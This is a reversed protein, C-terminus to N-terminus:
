KKEIPTGKYSQIMKRVKLVDSIDIQALIIGPNGAMEAIIEGWPSVIMSHGYTKRTSSNIGCQAPAFVFSFNEIARAKILTHWHSKGTPRTFAAPISIMNAGRSCLERYLAPFRLDYCISMGIRGWPLKATVIKKGKTFIKSEKYSEGKCINVDFMHIKDYKCIIKGSSSIMYSRNYLKSKEDKIIISGLLIWVSRKKAILKIENLFPDKKELFTSKLLHHKNLSVINTVEPTVILEAGRDCAKNIYKKTNLLNNSVSQKSNLQVCAVTLQQKKKAM